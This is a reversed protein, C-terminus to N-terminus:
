AKSIGIGLTVGERVLQPLGTVSPIRNYILLGEKGNQEHLAGSVISLTSVDANDINNYIRTGQISIPLFDTCGNQIYLDNQYDFFSLIEANDQMIIFYHKSGSAYAYEWVGCYVSAGTVSCPDILSLTQNVHQQAQLISILSTIVSGSNAVLNIVATNNQFTTPDVNFDIISAVSVTGSPIRIGNDITVM